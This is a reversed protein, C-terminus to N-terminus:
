DLDIDQVDNSDFLSLQGPFADGCDRVKKGGTIILPLKPVPKNFHKCAICSEKWDTDSNATNGYVLCKYVKRKGNEVRVLNKCERCTHCRNTGGSWKYMVQMKTM